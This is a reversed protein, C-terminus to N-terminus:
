VILSTLPQAQESQQGPHTARRLGVKRRRLDLASPRFTEEPTTGHALSRHTLRLSRRSGALPRCWAPVDRGGESSSMM